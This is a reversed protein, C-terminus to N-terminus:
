AELAAPLKPAYLDRVEEDSIDGPRIPFVVRSDFVAYMDANLVDFPSGISEVGTSPGDDSWVHEVGDPDTWSQGAINALVTVLMGNCHTAEVCGRIVALDGPKCNM